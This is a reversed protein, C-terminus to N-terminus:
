STQEDSRDAAAPPRYAAAPQNTATVTATATAPSTPTPPPTETPPLTPADPLLDGIADVLDVLPQIASAATATAIPEGSEPTGRASSTPRPAATLEAALLPHLTPTLQPMANAGRRLWPLGAAGWLMLTLLLCIVLAVAIRKIIQM